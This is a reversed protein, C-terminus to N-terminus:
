CDQWSRERERERNTVEDRILTHPNENGIEILGKRKAIEDRHRKSKTICGLGPNYEADEIKTGFFGLGGSIMLRTDASQCHGCIAPHDYEEAPRYLTTVLNCRNCFYEYLM